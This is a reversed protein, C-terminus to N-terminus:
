RIGHGQMPLSEETSRPLVVPEWEDVGMIEDPEQTHIMHNALFQRNGSM